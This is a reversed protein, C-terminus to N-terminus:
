FTVKSSVHHNNFVGQFFVKERETLQNKKEQLELGFVSMYVCGPLSEGTSLLDTRLVLLHHLPHVSEEKERKYPRIMGYFM